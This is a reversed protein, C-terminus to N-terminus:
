WYFGERRRRLVGLWYARMARIHAVGWYSTHGHDDLADTWSRVAERIEFLRMAGATEVDSLGLQFARGTDEIRNLEASVM